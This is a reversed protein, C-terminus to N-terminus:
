KYRRGLPNKKIFGKIGSGLKIGITGGYYLSRLWFNKKFCKSSLCHWYVSWYGGTKRCGFPCKYTAGANTSYMESFNMTKM